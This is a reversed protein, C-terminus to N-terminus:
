CPRWSGKYLNVKVHGSKEKRGIDVGKMPCRDIKKPQYARTFESEFNRTDHSLGIPEQHPKVLEVNGIKHIPYDNRHRDWVHLKEPAAREYRKRIPKDAKFDKPPKMISLATEFNRDDKKREYEQKPRRAFDVQSLDPGQFADQLASTGHFFSSSEPGKAASSHASFEVPSRM